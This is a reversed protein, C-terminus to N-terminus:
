GGVDDGGSGLSSLLVLGIGPCLAALQRGLAEGDMGPMRGDLVAVEFALDARGSRLQRPTGDQMAAAVAAEILPRDDEHDYAVGAELPPEGRSPARGHIRFVEDSWHLTPGSLDVRWTGVGAM